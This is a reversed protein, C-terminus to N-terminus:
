PFHVYSLNHTYRLELYNHSYLLYTAKNCHWTQLGPWSLMKVLRWNENTDCCDVEEIVSHINHKTLSGPFSTPSSAGDTRKWPFQSELSWVATYLFVPVFNQPPYLNELITGPRCLVFNDIARVWEARLSRKTPLTIRWRLWIFLILLTTTM